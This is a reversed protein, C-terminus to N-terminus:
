CGIHSLPGQRHPTRHGRNKKKAFLVERRVTRDICPIIGLRTKTLGRLIHRGIINVFVKGHPVKRTGLGFARDVFQKKDKDFDSRARSQWAREQLARRHQLLQFLRSMSRDRSSSDKLKEHERKRSKIEDGFKLEFEKLKDLHFKNAPSLRESRGELAMRQKELVKLRDERRSIENDRELKRIKKFIGYPM